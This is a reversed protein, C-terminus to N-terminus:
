DARIFRYYLQAPTTEAEFSFSMRGRDDATVQDSGSWNQLDPSTQVTYVGDARGFLCMNMQSGINQFSVISAFEEADPAVQVSVAAMRAGGLEGELQYYFVDEGSFGAPPTYLITDGNANVTGGQATASNTLSIQLQEAGTGRDNCMLTGLPIALTNGPSIGFRDAGAYVESWLKFSYAGVYAANNAGVDIKITYKGDAPLTIANTQDSTFFDAAVRQNASNLLEWRLWGAFANAAAIEQLQIVQGAVGNFVYLDQGGAAEIRGAGPGPAGDAVAEGFRVNFGSDDIPLIRFSYTGAIDPDNVIVSLRITYTGTEPLTRRGVSSGPSLYSSFLTQGSPARAEWRLNGGFSASAHLHDFFLSQGATGTFTYVDQAGGVEINGAGPGPVGNTVTQGIELAFHQDPPVHRIRFSYPGFHNTEHLGSSVLLRYVGTEDLTRRGEHGGGIFSRFASKGSPAKLEWQLWGAYAPASGLEEFWAIQGAQVPFEYIDMAGPAELRGAGPTPAGEAVTDGIHIPMVDDAPVARIRFSYDGTHDPNNSLVKVTVKYTGTEPLVRRGEHRGEFYSNMLSTGSPSKLDWQLWGKFTPAVSIEELFIVQGNTGAFRYTDIETSIAINGAGPGPENPAVVQDPVIDFDEAGAAIGTLCANLLVMLTCKKM